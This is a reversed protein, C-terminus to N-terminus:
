KEEIEALKKLIFLLVEEVPFEPARGMKISQDLYGIWHQTTYASKDIMTKAM